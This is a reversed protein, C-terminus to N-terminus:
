RLKGDIIKKYLIEEVNRRGDIVTIINIVKDDIRYIIRWPSEIIEHIETNGIINLEPVLRGVEPYTSLKEIKAIIRDYILRAVEKGSKSIIYQILDELDDAADESWIIKNSM